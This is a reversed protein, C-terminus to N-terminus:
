PYARWARAHAFVRRVDEVTTATKLAGAIAGARAPPIANSEFECAASTGANLRKIAKRAWKALDVAQPDPPPEPANAPANDPAPPLAPPLAPPAPPPEAPRLLDLVRVAEASAAIEEDMLIIERAADYGFGEGKLAAFRIRVEDTASPEYGLQEMAVDIPIGAGTLSALSTARQAEAEQFIALEEPSFYLEIGLPAFLQENLADQIILLNPRITLNWFNQEDQKATAYNAADSFLMSYPVGLGTAIDEKASRSLEPMALDKAPSSLDIKTVKAALVESAFANRVGSVARRWWEKLAKADDTRINGAGEVTLLQPHIAGREFFLKAHETIGRVIGASILTADVVSRGPGVERFPDADWAYIIQEETYPPIFQGNVARRFQMVGDPRMEPTITSSKLWRLATTKRGLQVRYLYFASWVCLSLEIRKLTDTWHTLFPIDSEAVEEGNERYYHRPCSAVANARLALGRRVHGVTNYVTQADSQSLGEGTLSQWAWSFKPDESLVPVAKQGAVVFVGPKTM